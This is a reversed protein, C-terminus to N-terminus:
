NLKMGSNIREFGSNGWQQGAVHAYTGHRRNASMAYICQQLNPKKEGYIYDNEQQFTLM